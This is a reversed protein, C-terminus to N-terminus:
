QSSTTEDGLIKTLVDVFARPGAGDPTMRLAQLLDEAPFESALNFGQIGVRAFEKIVLERLAPNNSVDTM